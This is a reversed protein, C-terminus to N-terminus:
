RTSVLWVSRLRTKLYFLAYSWFTKITGKISGKQSLLVQRVCTHLVLIPMIVVNSAFLLVRFVISRPNQKYVWLLLSMHKPSIFPSLIILNNLVTKRPILLNKHHHDPLYGPFEKQAKDYLATGPYLTLSFFQTFFPRPTLALTKITELMDEEKEFPNDLIVDYYAAVGSDKIIRAARLFDAQLSKRQFIEKCVWDSGSQLGLSVWSLGADKLLAMREASVYVPIIRAIFKKGVKEKYMTCFEGLYEDSCCLFCDDHFNIYELRPNNRVAKSLEEILHPISRRRVKNNGYLRSIFNNCCYSCHFPCGRSSIASYIKGTFRAYKKFRAEDLPLIRAGEQVFSHMPIQDYSPLVNLDVILPYLPNQTVKGHRVYCLNNIGSVDKNTSLASAMELLAKEGEGVCVYDAYALCEQPQISPHIGGWVVPVSSAVQKLYKTLECAAHYENSMLSVGIFGPNMTSVFQRIEKLLTSNQPKFDRIYLISSLHKHRLLYYHLYKIGITDLDSQLSILLIKM